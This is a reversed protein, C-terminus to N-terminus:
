GHEAGGTIEAIARAALGALVADEMPPNHLGFRVDRYLRQLPHERSLGHVGTIRLALDVVSLATQVVFTKAGGIDPAALSRWAADSAAAQEWQGAVAYLYHRAASIELEMQGIKQRIHPLHIIPRDLSNPQYDAAFAIAERRAALAIGLYCAPISLMYPSLGPKPREAETRHEYVKAETPLQVGQMVLNHSATGRMGVMNWVPDIFVGPTDRPILFSAVQETSTDFASVLFFGLAPSLTTFTKTGNLVYGQETLRATTQPRGGRSPSGTGKESDARNILAGRQVIDRYLSALTEKTILPNLALEYVVIQHWGIAIATPADEQALREQCLLFETLTTGKGGYERPVPFLHYGARKLEAILDTNLTSNEDALRAGAAHRAAIAGIQDVLERQEPTRAFGYRTNM